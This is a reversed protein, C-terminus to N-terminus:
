SVKKGERDWSSAYVFTGPCPEYNDISDCPFSPKEPTSSDGGRARTAGCVGCVFYHVYPKLMEGEKLPYLDRKSANHGMGYLLMLIIDRGTRRHDTLAERLSYAETRMREGSEQFRIARKRRERIGGSTRKHGAAEM